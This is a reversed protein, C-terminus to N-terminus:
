MLFSVEEGGRGMQPILIMDGNFNGDRTMESPHYLTSPLNSYQDFYSPSGLVKSTESSPTLVRSKRRSDSVPSAFVINKKSRSKSKSPKRRAKQISPAIAARKKPPNNNGESSSSTRKKKNNAKGKEPSAFLIVPEDEVYVHVLILM